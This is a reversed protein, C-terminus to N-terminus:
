REDNKGKAAGVITGNPLNAIGAYARISYPMVVVRAVKTKRRAALANRSGPATEAGCALALPGMMM